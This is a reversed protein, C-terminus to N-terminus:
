GKSCVYIFCNALPLPILPSLLIRLIKTPHILTWVLDRITRPIEREYKLIKEIRLGSSEIMIQWGKLTNYRQIPQKDDFVNGTKLVYIINGFLGYTNPLLILAKGKPKLVRYLEAIGKEPYNYHELSGIHTIYDVSSSKLPICEGDGVIWQSKPSSKYAKIIAPLSFDIGIGTVSKKYAFNIISGEGCSIDLLIKGKSPKLVELIWLYFSDQLKFNTSQYIQDYEKRSDKINHRIEIM